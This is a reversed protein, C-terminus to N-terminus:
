NCRTCWTWVEGIVQLLLVSNDQRQTLGTQPVFRWYKFSIRDFVSLVHVQHQMITELWIQPIFKSGSLTKIPNWKLIPTKDRLCAQCLPLVVWYKKKLDNDQQIGEAACYCCLDPKGIGSAYYFMCIYFPAYRPINNEFVYV